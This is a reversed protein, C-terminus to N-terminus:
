EPKSVADAGQKATTLREMARGLMYAVRQAGEIDSVEKTEIPGGDKGMHEAIVREGYKKPKLKSAIWKRTDIMVRAKQPDPETDAIDLMEDTHTDAQDERARAYQDRFGENDALWRYVNSVDPTDEMRCFSRLSKGEAIHVCIRNAIEESYEVRVSVKEKFEPPSLPSPPAEDAAAKEGKAGREARDAAAKLAAKGRSRAGAM